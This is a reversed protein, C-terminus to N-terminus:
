PQRNGAPRQGLGRGRRRGSAPRGAHRDAAAPDDVGAGAHAAPAGPAAATARLPRRRGVLRPLPCGAPPPPRLPAPPPLRGPAGRPHVTRTTTPIAPPAAAEVAPPVTAFALLASVPIALPLCRAVLRRYRMTIGSGM